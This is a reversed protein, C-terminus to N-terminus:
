GATDSLFLGLIYDLITAPYLVPIWSAILIWSNVVSFHNSLWSVSHALLLVGFVWRHPVGLILFCASSSLNENATGQEQSYIGFGRWTRCSRAWDTGRKVTGVEDGWWRWGCQGAKLKKFKGLMEWWVKVAKRRKGPLWGELNEVGWGALM